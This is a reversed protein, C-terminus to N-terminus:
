AHRDAVASERVEAFRGCRCNAASMSTGTCWGVGDGPPTGYADGCEAYDAWLANPYMTSLVHKSSGLLEQQTRYTGGSQWSYNSGCEAHGPPPPCNTASGPSEDWLALDPQFGGVSVVRRDSAPFDLDIRKNGSSAVMAVDRGIAYAITLCMPKSRLNGSCHYTTGPNPTGFSMSIVQAGTDVAEAKARDAANFNFKSRVQPPTTEVCELFAARYEVIGCQGCTGSVGLGSTANAGLLGATHTGHGLLAPPMPAGVPTCSGADIWEPKAEDINTQDFGAQAPLGTLGVDKSAASMLNGGVYLSGSFARIAPHDIDVGADIHAVQAYGGGTIRWAADLGIDDWGYQTGDEPHPPAGIGVEGIATHVDLDLPVSASEVYPDAQLAALAEPVDDPSPFLTLMATELKMRASDPNAQLWALFDGTARDEMLFGSGVPDKVTFAQLPPNAAHPWTNTYSVVEEPTPAGPVDKLLVLITRDENGAHALSAASLAVCAACLASKPSM